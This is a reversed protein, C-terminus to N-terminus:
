ASPHSNTERPPMTSGRVMLTTPMVVRQADTAEENVMSILLKAASNGMERLPVHVTTLINQGCDDFLPDTDDFGILSVDDPVRIGGCQLINYIIAALRDNLALIATIEPHAQLERTLPHYPPWQRPFFTRQQRYYRLNFLHETFTEDLPFPHLHVAPDLGYDRCARQYGALFFDQHSCFPKRDKRIFYLLHRHGLSLVHAAVEYAAAEANITISSCGPVDRLIYVLPHDTFAPTNRLQDLVPQFQEQHEVIIAGDVDGRSFSPPIKGKMVEESTEITLLGIGAPTLVDLVGQFLMASYDYYYFYPPIFVAFLRNVSEKGFRSLALQRANQYRTPDYGMEHATAQILHVTKENHLSSGRLARSVTSVDVGCRAAIDRLTVSKQSKTQQRAM